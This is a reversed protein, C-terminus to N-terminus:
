LAQDLFPMGIPNTFLSFLAAVANIIGQPNYSHTLIGSASMFAGAFVPHFFLCMLGFRTRFFFM